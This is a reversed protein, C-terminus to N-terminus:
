VYPMVEDGFLSLSYRNAAPDNAAPKLVLSNLDLEDRLRQIKDRCEAVDGILANELLRDMNVTVGSEGPEGNDSLMSRMRERFRRISPLAVALAAKRTKAVFFTRLLTLPKPLSPNIVRYHALTAKLKDTTAGQGGLLGYGRDAAHHVAAPNQSALFVPIPCQLPKPHTTVGEIQFHPGSHSVKDTGLLRVILELAELMKTRASEPPVKFHKNQLPFPGGQAVGLNLRGGSLHDLTAIDEALKIPDYFPLLLAATGLRIRKTVGSLHALLLLISPSVGFDTFHHEAVWAEQFGLEEAHQVLTSQAALVKAYDGDYNEYFCFIGFNM